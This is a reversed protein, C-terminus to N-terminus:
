LILQAVSKIVVEELAVLLNPLIGLYMLLMLGIFCHQSYRYRFNNYRCELHEPLLGGLVGAGDLSGIPIMNFAALVINIRWLAGGLGLLVMKETSAVIHSLTDIQGTFTAYYLNIRSSATPAVICIYLTTLALFIISLVANSLPGAMAILATATKTKLRRSLLNPNFTVPKAWGFCFGCSLLGIIPLVVTGITDIHSLPNLTMRETCAANKDSLWYIAAAHSAEHVSLSFLIAVFSIVVDSISINGLM